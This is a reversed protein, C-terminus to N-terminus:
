REGGGGCKTQFFIFVLCGDREWILRKLFFLFCTDTQNKAHKHRPKKPPSPPSRPGKLVKNQNLCHTKDVNEQQPGPLSTYKPSKTNKAKKVKTHLKNKKFRQPNQCSRYCFLNPTAKGKLKKKTKPNTKQNNKLFLFFLISIFAQCTCEIRTHSNEMQSKTQMTKIYIINIVCTNEIKVTSKPVSIDNRGQQQKKEEEAQGYVSVICLSDETCACRSRVPRSDITNESPVLATM